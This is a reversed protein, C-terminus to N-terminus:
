ARKTQLYRNVIRDLEDDSAGVPDFSQSQLYRLFEMLEIGTFIEHNTMTQQITEM